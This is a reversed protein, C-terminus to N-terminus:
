PMPFFGRMADDLGSSNQPVICRRHGRICYLIIDNQTQRYTDRVRRGFLCTGVNGIQRGGFNARRLHAFSRSDIDQYFVIVCIQNTRHLRTPFGGISTQVNCTDYGIRCRRFLHAAALHTSETQSCADDLIHLPLWHESGLIFNTETGFWSPRTTVDITNISPTYLCRM